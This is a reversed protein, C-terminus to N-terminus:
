RTRDENKIGKVEERVDRLEQRLSDMGASLTKIDGQTQALFVRLDAVREGLQWAAGLLVIVLGLNVGQGLTIIPRASPANETM